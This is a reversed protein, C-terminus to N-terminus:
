DTEAGFSSHPRKDMDLYIHGISAYHLTMRWHLQFVIATTTAAEREKVNDHFVM